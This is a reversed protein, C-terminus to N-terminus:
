VYVPIPMNRNTGEGIDNVDISRFDEDDDYSNM